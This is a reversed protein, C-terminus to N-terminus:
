FFGPGPDLVDERALIIRCVKKWIDPHHPVYVLNHPIICCFASYIFLVATTPICALNSVQLRPRFSQVLIGLFFAWLVLNILCLSDGFQMIGFRVLSVIFRPLPLPLSSTMIVLSCTFKPCVTCAFFGHPFSLADSMAFLEAILHM